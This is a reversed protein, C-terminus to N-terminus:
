QIRAKRYPGDFAFQHQDLIGVGVREYVHGEDLTSSVQVLLVYHKLPETKSNGVVVCQLSQTFTQGPDDLILLAGHTNRIKRVPAELEPVPTDIGKGERDYQRGNLVDLQGVKAFPSMIDECWSAQGFPVDMYRIHGVYAMWSWSPVPSGGRFSEMHKLAKDARQWLLCRHLYIDFIGYGGTTGFTDLLRTELGKIAIPRDSPFTLALRSYREYLDQFLEIRMGKVYKEAANPFNADGLFSAKRNKMKTMTECRVGEGCEWYSQKKTFYITRRSLAREQLVWGRQNLEGLDVDNHFDDITECVAYAGGRGPRQIVVCRRPPRPKLFGDSSGSACSAAITCYASSFVRGMLKSEAEWDDQDDQVICLSDIWLRQLHLGRTIRIADQFTKPLRKVKIGRKLDGINSKYTCFKAHQEPSGWRHSLAVYKGSGSHGRGLDVLRVTKSEAGSVDLFRRPLFNLHKPYCQHHSDCCRIWERLVELHTESGVDPLRPFGMQFNELSAKQSGSVAYLNAIAQGQGNDITLYSGVRAFRVLDGPRKVRAQICQLLLRCLECREKIAKEKLGELSDIFTCTTSWLGLAICRHCLV